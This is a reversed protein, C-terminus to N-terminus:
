NPSATLGFRKLTKSMDVQGMRRLANGLREPLDPHNALGELILIPAEFDLEDFEEDSVGLLHACLTHLDDIFGGHALSILLADLTARFTAAVDEADEDDASLRNYALAAQGFSILPVLDQSMIKLILTWVPKITGVTLKAFEYDEGGITVAPYTKEIPSKSKIKPSKGEMKVGM